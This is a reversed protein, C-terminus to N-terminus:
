RLRPRLVRDKIFNKSSTGAQTTCDSSQPADDVMSQFVSTEELDICARVADVQRRLILAGVHLPEFTGM